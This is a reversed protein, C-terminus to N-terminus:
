ALSGPERAPYRIIPNKERLPWRRLPPDAPLAAADPLLPPVPPAPFPPAAPVFPGPAPPGPLVPIIKRLHRRNRRFVRGAATKVLYDRNPGVEVIIGPTSWRKTDPHQILVHNGVNFPLLPHATRNFHEARVDRSRQARSELLVADRRWEPNFLRRHAPLCDRVPRGFLLEAPSAGGSLPANRFLLLSKGFADADFSGSVWSGHILKKMSKIAAEARGNSQAYTPASTGATIGWDSLFTKFEAAAFQPGNDSWFKVPTGGQLFFGRTADITRRATTHKDPFPVVHPWGSFQDALILFDRNRITALDAHIQEFPRSAAEHPRLPEPPHSPLLETCSRCSRAANEIDNDMGPWYLSLRARQRLKTSGQHMRVLDRLIDRRCSTPVVIRAGVMVMGDDNDISLRDRVSWFPRLTLSLNCKDNPFGHLITDRLDIMVPDRATADQINTLVPDVVAPDFDEIAFVIALRASFSPPGEALEDAPTPQDVPARSLADAASNDRGPVWSAVFNYRQMKLRLRLIRVNDLKDLAHDNLIPILPKHDTILSFLPLGLLFQSCQDMAWSAALCELEIMAYRKEADSLFRSGAQVIRWTSPSTKQRLLFGVGNLRSADVHLATPLSPDYFALEPVVSLALKAKNFADNHSSTWEWTFGKKLLTSLPLLTSALLTSFNGVQQCLGYFSRADTVNTPVPFDRIARTLNPNPRFGSLDIAYGGFIASPQAFALKTVNISVNHDSARQFLQRVLKIHEEYTKSFEVVDEVVRRCAPLDDFVDSVRRGYDDGAHCVGFPLRLYQYRGFPTSFTTLATSEEDLKVQHYGKLADIVTFYKMGPPITRVAQFPTNADFLPRVISKNLNRFDVCLRIGGDKKPVLVIPHVWETPEVVKRIIEQAELQDM